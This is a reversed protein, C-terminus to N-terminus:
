SLGLVSLDPSRRNFGTADQFAKALALVSAEAFWALLFACAALLRFARAAFRERPRSRLEKM